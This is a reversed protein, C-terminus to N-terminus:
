VRLCTYMYVLKHQLCYYYGIGIIKGLQLFEFCEDMNFFLGGWWKVDRGRSTCVIITQAYIQQYVTLRHIYMELPWLDAKLFDAYSIKDLTLLYKYKTLYKLHM